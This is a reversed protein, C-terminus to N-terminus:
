INKSTFNDSADNWAKLAKSRKNNLETNLTNFDNTAKNFDNVLKNYNDVIEKTRDKDKMKQMDAQAKEFATKITYFDILKQAKEAEETYFKLAASCANKLSPDNEFNPMKQLAEIGEKSFKALSSKNQEMAAVDGRNMADLLYADQKYSKFFILYVPNFYDYVQGARKLKLGVKDTSEILKINNEAAFKKEVEEVRDGASSLKESALDQAKLYADMMDYSQEKVDELNMLKEYDQTVVALNIKLYSLVTDRYYTKQDFPKAAKVKQIAAKITEALQLRNSNVKRASKNKAVSKTYDWSDGQIKKFVGGIESMYEVPSPAQAVANLSAVLFIGLLQKKM